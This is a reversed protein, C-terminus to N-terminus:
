LGSQPTVQQQVVWADLKEKDDESIAKRERDGEVGAMPEEATRNRKTYYMHNAFTMSPSTLDIDTRKLMSHLLNQFKTKFNKLSRVTYRSGGLSTGGAEPAMWLWWHGIVM